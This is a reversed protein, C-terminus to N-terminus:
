QRAVHLISVAICGTGSPLLMAQWGNPLAYISVASLTTEQKSGAPLLGTMAECNQPFPVVRVAAGECSRDGPSVFVMGAGPANNSSPDQYTMGVLAQLAKRDPEEQAWATRASYKTGNTLAKGLTSYLEACTPAGAQRAQALFPDDAAPAGATTAAPLYRGRLEVLKPHDWAAIAILGIVVLGLATYRLFRYPSAAPTPTHEFLKGLMDAEPLENRTNSNM